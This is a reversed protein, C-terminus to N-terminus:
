AEHVHGIFGREDPKRISSDTLKAGVLQRRTAAYITLLAYHLPRALQTYALVRQLYVRLVVPM